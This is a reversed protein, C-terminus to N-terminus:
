KKKKRDENLYLTAGTGIAAAGIAMWALVSLDGTKPVMIGPKSPKSPKEPKPKAPKEPDPKVPDPKVPTAKKTNILHYGDVEVSYGKPVIEQITYVHKTGDSEKIIWEGFDYAWGNAKTVVKRDVEKGDQYLIVTISEPRDSEMDNKWTKTGKIAEKVPDPTPEEKKTNTLNYGNTVTQYGDVAIEKITYVHKTGNSEKIVWEGFDYTWGNAKTVVKRDVEKGDQYLIVTISEPRDSEKDNEWTKNGKITEKVPDPTPEEKKTNTITFGDNMNGTIVPEQYGVVAEEEVRYEILTVRDSRYKDLNTFRHELQGNALQAQKVLQDGDYLKITITPHSINQGRDEWKKVVDINIKEMPIPRNKVTLVIPQSAEEPNPVSFEYIGDGIIEYNSPAKIEKFFYDGAELNGIILLGVENTDYTGILQDENSINSRDLTAELESIKEELDSRKAQLDDNLSKNIEDSREDIQMEIARLAEELTLRENEADMSDSSKLATIQSELDAREKELREIEVQAGEKDLERLNSLEARVTALQEKIFATRNENAGLTDANKWLEFTAGQLVQNTEQDLKQLVVGFVQEPINIFVFGDQPNGAKLSKFGDVPSEEVTYVIENGSEDLQLLDNFM